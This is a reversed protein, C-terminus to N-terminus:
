KLFWPTATTQRVWYWVVKWARIGATFNRWGSSTFNTTEVMDGTLDLSWSHTTYNADSDVITGFDVQGKYGHIAAM